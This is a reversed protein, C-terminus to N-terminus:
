TICPTWRRLRPTPNPKTKDEQSKSNEQSSWFEPLGTELGSHLLFHSSRWLRKREEEEGGGGLALIGSTLYGRCGVCGCRGVGAEKDGWGPKKTEGGRSRQLIKCRLTCLSLASPPCHLKHFANTSCPCNTDAESAPSECSLSSVYIIHYGFYSHGLSEFHYNLAKKKQGCFTELSCPFVLCPFFCSGLYCTNFQVGTKEELYVRLVAWLFWRVVHNSQTKWCHNKQQSFHVAEWVCCRRVAVIAGSFWRSSLLFPSCLFM